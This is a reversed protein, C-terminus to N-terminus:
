STNYENLSHRNDTRHRNRYEHYDSKNMWPRCVIGDPWTSDNEVLESQDQCVVIQAVQCDTRNTNLFKASKCCIGSEDLFEYLGNLDSELDIGNIIYAKTKKRIVGRFHTTPKNTASVSSALNIDQFSTNHRLQQDTVQNYHRKNHDVHVESENQRLVSIINQSSPQTDIHTLTNANPNHNTFNQNAKIVNGILDSMNKNMSDFKNSIENSFQNFSERVTANLCSSNMKEEMSTLKAEVSKASSADKVKKSVNQLQNGCEKTHESIKDNIDEICKKLTNKRQIDTDKLSNINISNDRVGIKVNNVELNMQNRCTELKQLQTCISAIGTSLESHETKLHSNLIKVCNDMENQISAVCEQAESNFKDVKERTERGELKLINVESQLSAVSTKLLKIENLASSDLDSTDYVTQDLTSQSVTSQSSKFMFSVDNCNGNLFQNINFCDHAYKEAVSMKTSKRRDKLVGNPANDYNQTRSALEKRYKLLREESSNTIQLLKSIYLDKPMSSLMNLIDTKKATFEYQQQGCQINGECDLPPSPSYSTYEEQQQIDYNGGTFEIATIINAPQFVEKVYTQSNDQEYSDIDTPYQDEGNFEIDYNNSM